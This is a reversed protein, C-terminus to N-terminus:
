FGIGIGGFVILLLLVCVRVFYIRDCFYVGRWVELVGGVM